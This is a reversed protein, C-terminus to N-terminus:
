NYDPWRHHKRLVCMLLNNASLSLSKLFSAVFVISLNILNIPESTLFCSYGLPFDPSSSFIDLTTAKTVAVASRLERLARVTNLMRERSAVTEWFDEREKPVRDGLAGQHDWQDKAERSERPTRGSRGM